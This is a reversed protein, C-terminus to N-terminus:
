NEEVELEGDEMTMTGDLYRTKVGKEKLVNHGMEARIGSNCYLILEKTSDLEGMRSGLEDVPINMAGPITEKAYEDPNRVDVLQMGGPTKAAAKEFESM